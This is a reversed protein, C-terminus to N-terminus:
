LCRIPPLFLFAASLIQGPLQNITQAAQGTIRCRDDGHEKSMMTLRTSSSSSRQASPCRCTRSTASPTPPACTTASAM